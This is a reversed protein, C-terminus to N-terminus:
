QMVGILSTDRELMVCLQQLTQDAYSLIFVLVFFVQGSVRFAMLMFMKQQLNMWSLIRAAM